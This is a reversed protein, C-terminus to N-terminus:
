VGNPFVATPYNNIGKQQMMEKLNSRYSNKQFPHGTKDILNYSHMIARGDAFDTYEDQSQAFPIFFGGNKGDSVSGAYIGIPLGFDSMVLSGSAGSGLAGYSFRGQYGYYDFWYKKMFYDLSLNDMGNFEVGASNGDRNQLDIAAEQNTLTTFYNYNPVAAFSGGSTVPYGFDSLEQIVNAGNTLKTPHMGNNHTASIYDQDMYPISGSANPVKKTLVKAISNDLSNKADMFWQNIRTLGQQTSAFSYSNVSDTDLIQLNQNSLDVDVSFVMFDKMFGFSKQNRLNTIKEKYDSDGSNLFKNEARNKFVNSFQANTTESMFDAAAFIMRPKGLGPYYSGFDAQKSGFNKNTIYAVNILGNRATPNVGGDLPNFNLDGQSKGLMIDVEENPNTVNYDFDLGTAATNHLPDGGVHINTALYFTFKKLNEPDQHYDLVWSTGRYNSPALINGNAQKVAFRVSFTRDYISKLVDVKSERSIQGNIQNNDISAKFDPDNPTAGDSSQTALKQPPFTASLNWTGDSLKDGNGVPVPKEKPEEPKAPQQNPQGSNVDPNTEDPKADSIVTSAFGFALDTHYNHDGLQLSVILFGDNVSLKLVIVNTQFQINIQADKQIQEWQLKASFTNLFSLYSNLDKQNSKITIQSQTSVLNDLAKKDHEFAIQKQANGDNMAQACSGLVPALLSLGTFMLLFLKKKNHKM